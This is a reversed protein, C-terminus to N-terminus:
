LEMSDGEIISSELEENDMDEIYADLDEDNEEGEEMDMLADRLRFALEEDRGHRLADALGSLAEIEHTSVASPTTPSAATGFATGQVTGRPTNPSATLYSADSPPEIDADLDQHDIFKWFGLAPLHSSRNKRTKL